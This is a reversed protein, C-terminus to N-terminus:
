HKRKAIRPLGLREKEGETLVFDDQGGDEVVKKGYVCAIDRIGGSFGTHMLVFLFLHERDDKVEKEERIWEGTDMSWLEQWMRVTISKFAEMGGGLTKRKTKFETCTQTEPHYICTLQASYHHWNFDATCRIPKEVQNLDAPGSIVISGGEYGEDGAGRPGSFESWVFSYKEVIKYVKGEEKDSWEADEDFDYDEIITPLQDKDNAPVEEEDSWGADEDFDYDEDEYAQLDDEIITPLQGKDNAPLSM